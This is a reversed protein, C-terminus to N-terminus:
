ATQSAAFPLGCHAKAGRWPSGGFEKGVGSATMQLPARSCAALPCIPGHRAPPPWNLSARHTRVVVPSRPRSLPSDDVTMPRPRSSNTSIRLHHSTSPPNMSSAPGLRLQHSLRQDRPPFRVFPPLRQPTTVITNQCALPCHWRSCQATACPYRRHPPHSNSCCRRRMCCADDAVSPQM